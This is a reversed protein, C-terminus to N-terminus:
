VEAAVWYAVVGSPNFSESHVSQLTFSSTSTSEAGAWFSDSNAPTDNHSLSVIINPPASFFGAPFSVSSTFFGSSYTVSVNGSLVKPFARDDLEEFNDNLDSAFLREGATFTKSLAM